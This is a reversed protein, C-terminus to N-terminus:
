RRAAVAPAHLTAAVAVPRPAAAHRVVSLKRAVAATDLQAAAAAAAAAAGPPKTAEVDAAHSPANMLANGAAAGVM